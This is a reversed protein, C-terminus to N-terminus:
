QINEKVWLDYVVPAPLDYIPEKKDVNRLEKVFDKISIDKTKEIVKKFKNDEYNKYLEIGTADLEMEIDRYLDYISGCNPIIILMTFGCEKSLLFFSKTTRNLFRSVNNEFTEM